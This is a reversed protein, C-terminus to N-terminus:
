KLLMPLTTIIAPFFLLLLIDVFLILIFPMLEVLLDDFKLGTIGCVVYVCLGVPPTLLGLALVAILVVSAVVPDIGAAVIVPAVIPVTLIIAANADLFMGLIIFLGVFGLLLMNQSLNLSVFFKALHEPINNVTLIYSFASACAIVMMVTATMRGADVLIKPLDKFKLERYVFLALFLSYLMALVAAETPTAIGTLIGGIIIGPSLLALFGERGKTAITKLSFGTSSKYGRRISIVTSVAILSAGVLLGPGFGAMFLDAVSLGACFGWLIMPISPPIIIGLPSASATLASPYKLGYGKQEMAPIMLSGIASADAVASGSVGGMFMNAVIDSAALGGPLFGVLSDAFDILRRTVGGKEMISGAMVFFPIALLLWSNAGSFMKMLVPVLTGTDMVILGVVTAGMLAFSVPVSVVLLILFSAFLIYGIGAEM